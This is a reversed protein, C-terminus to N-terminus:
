YGEGYVTIVDGWDARKDVYVDTIRFHDWTKRHIQECNRLVCHVTRNRFKMGFSPTFDLEEPWVYEDRSTVDRVRFEFMKRM